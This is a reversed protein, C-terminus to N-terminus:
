SVYVCENDKPKVFKDMNCITPRSTKRLLCPNKDLNKLIFLWSGWEGWLHWLLHNLWRNHVLSGICALTLWQLFFPFKLCVRYIDFWRDLGFGYILVENRFVIWPQQHNIIVIIVYRVFLYLSTSNNEIM